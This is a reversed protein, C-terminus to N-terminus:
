PRRVLSRSDSVDLQDLLVFFNQDENAICPISIYAMQGLGRAGDNVIRQWNPMASYTIARAVSLSPPAKTYDIVVVPYQPPLTMPNEEKFRTLMDTFKGETHVMYRAHALVFAEHRADAPLLVTGKQRESLSKRCDARHSSWHAKQCEPSCYFVRRCAQCQKPPQEDVRQCQPNSCDSFDVGSSKLYISFTRM